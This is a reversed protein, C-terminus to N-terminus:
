VASKDIDLGTQVNRLWVTAIIEDQRVALIDVPRVRLWRLLDAPFGPDDALMRVVDGPAARRLWAALHVIPLPCLRGREDLEADVHEPIPARLLGALLHPEATM